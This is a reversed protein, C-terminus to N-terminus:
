EGIRYPKRAEYLKLRKEVRSRHVAELDNSELARKVHKVANEFDGAEAYAAALVDLSTGSWQSAECVKLGLAVAKKGDRVAADPCAALFRALWEQSDIDSPDLRVAETLQAM